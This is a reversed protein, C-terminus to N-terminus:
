PAPLTPRMPGHCLHLLHGLCGQPAIFTTPLKAKKAEHTHGVRYGLTEVTSRMEKTCPPLPPTPTARGM